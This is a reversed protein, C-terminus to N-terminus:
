EDNEGGKSKVKRKRWWAEIEIPTNGLFAFFAGLWFLGGYLSHLKFVLLCGIVVLAVVFWITYDSFFKTAKFFLDGM